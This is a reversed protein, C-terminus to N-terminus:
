VLLLESIVQSLQNHEAKEYIRESYMTLLTMWLYDEIVSRIM